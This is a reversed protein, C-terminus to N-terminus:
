APRQTCTSDILEEYAELAREFAFQDAFNGYPFQSRAIKRGAAGGIEPCSKLRLQARISRFNHVPFSLEFLLVAFLFGLCGAYM